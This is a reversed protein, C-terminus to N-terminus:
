RAFTPVDSRACNALPSPCGPPRSCRRRARAARRRASQWQSSAPRVPVCVRIFPHNPDWKNTVKYGNDALGTKIKSVSKALAPYAAKTKAWDDGFKAQSPNNPQDKQVESMVLTWCEQKDQSDAALPLM